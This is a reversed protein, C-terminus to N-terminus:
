PTDKVDILSPFAKRFYFKFQGLGADPIVRLPGLRQAALARGELVYDAGDVAELASAGIRLIQDLQGALFIVFCGQFVEFALDGLKGTDELLEFEAAHEIALHVGVVGEQVDLGAGAARLRLVPGLHEQAHVQAPALRATEVCLEDLHGAAFHRTDLAGRDLERALVGEAPQARLRAHM